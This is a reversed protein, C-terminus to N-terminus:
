QSSTVQRIVGALDRQHKGVMLQVISDQDAETIEKQTLYNKLRKVTDPKGDFINPDPKVDIIDPMEEAPTAEYGAIVIIYSYQLRLVKGTARTQSMSRRAYRDRDKWKKEEPCCISSAGGVIMGDSKQKLWMYAEYTGDKYRKVYKEEVFVNKQEALVLWGAVTVHKKGNILAYLQQKEIIDKMYNAIEVDSKVTRALMEVPKPVMFNTTEDMVQLSNM